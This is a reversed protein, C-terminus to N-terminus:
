KWGEGDEFFMLEWYAKFLFKMDGTENFKKLSELANEPSRNDEELGFMAYIANKVHEKAASKLDEHEFYDDFETSHGREHMGLAKEFEDYDFFDPMTFEINKSKELAEIAKSVNKNVTDKM